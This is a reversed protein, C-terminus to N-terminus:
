QVNKMQPIGEAWRRVPVRRDMLIGQLVIPIVTRKVLDCATPSLQDPRFPLCRIFAAATHEFHQAGIWTTNRVDDTQSWLRGDILLRAAQKETFNLSGARWRPILGANDTLTEEFTKRFKQYSWLEETLFQAFRDFEKECDKFVAGDSM